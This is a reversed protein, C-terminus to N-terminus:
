LLYFDDNLQLYPRVVEDGATSPPFFLTHVCRAPTLSNRALVLLFILSTARQLQHSPTMLVEDLPQILYQHFLHRLPWMAPRCLIYFLIHKGVRVAALNLRSSQLNNRGPTADSKNALRQLDSGSSWLQQLRGRQAVKVREWGSFWDEPNTEKVAVPASEWRWRAAFSRILKEHWCQSIVLKLSASLLLSRHTRRLSTSHGRSLTVAGGTPFSPRFASKTIVRDIHASWYNLNPGKWRDAAANTQTNSTNREGRKNTNLKIKRYQPENGTSSLLPLYYADSIRGGTQLPLSTAPQSVRHSWMSLNGDPPFKIAIYLAIGM